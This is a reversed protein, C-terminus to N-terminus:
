SRRRGTVPTIEVTIRVHPLEDRDPELSKGLLVVQGSDKLVLEAIDQILPKNSDSDKASFLVEYLRSPYIPTGIEWRAAQAKAAQHTAPDVRPLVTPDDVPQFYHELAKQVQDKAQNESIGPAPTVSVKLELERLRPPVVDLETGAPRCEDLRDFVASLLETPPLFKPPGEQGTLDRIPAQPIVVVTIAGPIKLGPHRVLTQPLVIARGVGPIEEAFRRYDDKTVARADGRLVRPARDLLDKLPEEDMGGAAPRPNTVSELGSVGLPPDKISDARINGSSGGGALYSTAILTQGAGPIRGQKGNGFRIEGSNPNLTFDLDDPSSDYLDGKLQCPQESGDGDTVLVLKLSDKDVPQNKFQFQSQTGDGIGVVENQITSRNEVEVVNGRVFSIEPIDEKPYTGGVLRCRIWFRSEEDTPKPSKTARCDAGPGRLVVRGQRTLSKTSDDIVTLPRWRDPDFTAGDPADFKSQYEWVLTPLERGSVTTNGDNQVVPKRGLPFFFYLVMRGPFVAEGVGQNGAGQDPHFGLYLANALQPTWGLPRLSQTGAENTKSYDEFQLGDFVQVADLPYPILDIPETTEFTLADGNEATVFFKSRVRVPKPQPKPTIGVTMVVQTKSPRAERRELKLMKLFTIYNLEPIKNIRFLMLETLWAFLQVLAMGPDSDNFDTWEPCYRQLRLKAEALIDDFQRDDLQPPELPM